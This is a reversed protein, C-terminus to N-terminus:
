SSTSCAWLERSIFTVMELLLSQPYELDLPFGLDHSHQNDVLTEMLQQTGACTAASICLPAVLGVLFQDTEDAFSQATLIM